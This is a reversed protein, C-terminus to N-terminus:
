SLPGGARIEVFWSRAFFFRFFTIKKWSLQASIKENKEIDHRRTASPSLLWLFCYSLSSFQINNTTWSGCLSMLPCWNPTFLTLLHKIDFPMLIFCPVWLLTPGTQRIKNLNILASASTITTRMKNTRRLNRRLSNSSYILGLIDNDLAHFSWLQPSFDIFKNSNHLSVELLNEGAAPPMPSQQQREQPSPYPREVLALWGEYSTNQHFKLCISKM